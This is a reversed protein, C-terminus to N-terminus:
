TRCRNCYAADISPERHPWTVAVDTILLLPM